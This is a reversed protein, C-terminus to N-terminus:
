QKFKLVKRNGSTGLDTILVNNSAVSYIERKREQEVPGLYREFAKNTKWGGQKIQEPTYHHALARVTSHRTGGYLDVGHIGLNGCAAKWWKWLYDKGFRQGPKCAGNGKIHRFFPLEPFAPGCSKALTVDDPLFYIIRSDGTKTHKVLVAQADYNFDKEKIRILEGPRIEYYTALWKIGLWIKPNIDYSINKVEQIIAQQTEKTVTNRWGLEFKITPFEPVDIRERKHCWVFFAHLTTFHNRITKSSLGTGQFAQLYDELNGYGIHKINTQGFFHTARLIHNRLNRHCRVTGKRYDLWKVALSAFGLPQDHRYDRVDFSGEDTKFRYGTLLRRAKEYDHRNRTLNGFRVVFTSPKCEPHKPCWLGMPEFHKYQGGCVPCTENSYIGGKM